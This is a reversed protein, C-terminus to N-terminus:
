QIPSRESCPNVIHGSRMIKSYRRRMAPRRRQRSDQRRARARCRADVVSCSVGPLSEAGSPLPAPRGCRQGLGFGLGLLQLKRMLSSSTCRRLSISASTPRRRVSSSVISSRRCFRRSLAPAASAVSRSAALRLILWRSVLISRVRAGRQGRHLLLPRGFQLTHRRHVLVLRALHQEIADFLVSALFHRARDALHFGFRVFLGVAPRAGDDGHGDLAEGAVVDAFEGDAADIQGRVLHLPADDTALPAVDAGDLLRQAHVQDHVVRGFRDDDAAISGTRRSTARMASLLSTASPRMWGARMSFSTSFACCSISRMMTSAPSCAIISVPM